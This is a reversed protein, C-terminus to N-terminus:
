RNRIFNAILGIILTLFMGLAVLRVADPLSLARVRPNGLLNLLLLGAMVVIFVLFFPSEMMQKM